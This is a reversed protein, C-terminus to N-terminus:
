GALGLEKVVSSIKDNWSGIISTGLYLFGPFPTSNWVSRQAETEEDMILFISFIVNLSDGLELMKQNLFFWCQGKFEWHSQLETHTSQLCLSNNRPIKAEPIEPKSSERLASFTWRRRWIMLHTIAWFIISFSWFTSGLVHLSSLSEPCSM